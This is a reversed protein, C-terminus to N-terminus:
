SNKRWRGFLTFWFSPYLMLWLGTVLQIVLGTLGLVNAMDLTPTVPIFALASPLQALSRVVFYIGAFQFLLKQSDASLSADTETRSSVLVSAATRYILYASVLGIVLFCSMLWFYIIAPIAAQQYKELNTMLMLLSPINLFLQIMLWIAIIKLAVATIQQTIMSLGFVQM